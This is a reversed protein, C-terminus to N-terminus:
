VRLLSLQCTAHRNLQSCAFRRSEEARRANWKANNLQVTARGKPTQRYQRHCERQKAYLTALRCWEAFAAAADAGGAAIRAILIRESM